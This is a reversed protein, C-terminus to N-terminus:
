IGAPSVQCTWSPSSLLLSPGVRFSGRLPMRWGPSSPPKLHSHVIGLWTLRKRCLFMNWILLDGLPLIFLRSSAIVDNGMELLDILLSFSAVKSALYPCFDNKIYMKRLSMKPGKAPDVLGKGEEAVEADFDLPRIVFGSHFSRRGGDSRLHQVQVLQLAVQPLRERQGIAQLSHLFPYSLLPTKSWLM